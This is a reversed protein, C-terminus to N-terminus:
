IIGQTILRDEIEEFKDSQGFTLTGSAEVRVLIAEIFDIEWASLHSEKEAVREIRSAAITVAEGEV